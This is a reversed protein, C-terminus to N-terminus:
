GPPDPDLQRGIVIGAARAPRGHPYRRLAEATSWRMSALKGRLLASKMGPFGSFSPVPGAGLCKTGLPEKM